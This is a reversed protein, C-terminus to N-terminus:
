VITKRPQLMQRCLLSFLDMHIRICRSKRHQAEINCAVGIQSIHYASRAQHSALVEVNCTPFCPVLAVRHTRMMVHIYTMYRIHIMSDDVRMMRDLTPTSLAFLDVRM